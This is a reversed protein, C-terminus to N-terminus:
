IHGATRECSGSECNVVEFVSEAASVAREGAENVVHSDGLNVRTGDVVRTYTWVELLEM